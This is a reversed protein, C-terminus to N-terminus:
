EFLYDLYDQGILFVSSKPRVTHKHQQKQFKQRQTEALNLWRMTSDPVNSALSRRNYTPFHEDDGNYYEWGIQKLDKSMENDDRKKLMTQPQPSRLPIPVETIAKYPKITKAVGDIKNQHRSLDFVFVYGDIFKVFLFYIFVILKM